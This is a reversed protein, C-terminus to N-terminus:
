AALQIPKSQGACAQLFADFLQMDLATATDSEPHWQVGICFWNSDVLEIAEIVGDPSRAGIRLGKGLQDVAQHHESNVRLEGGEGYIEEMTTGPEILVLHRHADGTEDRHPMARPMNEPLHLHLTGGLAVNILQMGAGIGLVPVRRKQIQEFLRRDHMERRSPMLQVAPHTPLGQRSPDLDRGGSLIIGDVRDLYADIEKLGNSEPPSLPPLIVPLAGAQLITDVYGPNLRFHASQIKSAPVFDANIGVVPRTPHAM